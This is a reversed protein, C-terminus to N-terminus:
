FETVHGNEQIHLFNYKYSMKQRMTRKKQRMTQRHTISLYVCLFHRHTHMCKLLTLTHTHANSTLLNCQHIYRHCAYSGHFLLRDKQADTWFLPAIFTVRKILGTWLKWCHTAGAVALGEFYARVIFDGNNDEETPLNSSANKSSKTIWAM